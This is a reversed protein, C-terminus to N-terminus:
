PDLILDVNSGKDQQHAPSAHPRLTSPKSVLVGLQAWHNRQSGSDDHPVARCVTHPSQRYRADVAPAWACSFLSHMLLSASKACFSVIRSFLCNWKSYLLTHLLPPPQATSFHWYKCAPVTNPYCESNNWGLSVLMEEVDSFAPRCGEKPISVVFHPQSSQKSTSFCHKVGESFWFRNM